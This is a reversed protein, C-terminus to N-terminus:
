HGQTLFDLYDGGTKGFAKLDYFTGQPSVIRDGRRQYGAAALKRLHEGRSGGLGSVTIFKALAALVKARQMPPFSEAYAEEPAAPKPPAPPPASRATAAHQREDLAIERELEEPRVLFPLAHTPDQVLLRGTSHIGIVTREGSPSMWKRGIPNRSRAM